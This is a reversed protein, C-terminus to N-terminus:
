FAPIVPIFWCAWGSTEKKSIFRKGVKEAKNKAIKSNIKTM